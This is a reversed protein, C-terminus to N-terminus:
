YSLVFPPPLFVLSSGLFYSLTWVDRVLRLLSASFKARLDPLIHDLFILTFLFLRGLTLIFMLRSHPPVLLSIFYTWVSILYPNLRPRHYRFIHLPHDDPVLTLSPSPVPRLPFTM